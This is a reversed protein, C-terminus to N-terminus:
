AEDCPEKMPKSLGWWQTIRWVLELVIKSIAGSWSELRMNWPFFVLILYKGNIALIWMKLLKWHAPEMMLDSRIRVAAEHKCSHSLKNYIKIILWEISYDQVCKNNKLSKLTKIDSVFKKIVELYIKLLTSLLLFNKIM